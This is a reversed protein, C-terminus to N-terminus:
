NSFVMAANKEGALCNRLTQALIQPRYPKQIYNYGDVLEEMGEGMLDLSYGSTYIIKLGKDEEKLKLALQRGTMGEPMVMDTLLLDIETKHEAWVNLAEVGNEASLVRYGYKELIGQVLVRLGPEDEVLLITEQVSQIASMTQSHPTAPVEKTEAPVYIQFITGQGVQSSVEIWGKHQQVIGYVTSLGLGSGKGVGKTTFFPEFIRQLTAADMGCGTDSVTLCAFSGPRAEPRIRSYAKCIEVLSTSIIFQGGKPMADKANVALNGILQELMGTDARVFPAPTTFQTKLIVSEGLIRQLMTGLGEIVSDLNLVKPQMVQKRSFTLLQRTLTAAREAATSIEKLARSSLDQSSADALLLSTYGQIIALINNFDHAFGAALQGVAQMKHSQRVNIEQKLRDTVDYCCVLVCSMSEAALETSSALVTRLDGTRTRLRWESDANSMEARLSVCAEECAQADAWIATSLASEGLLEERRYGLLALFSDNVELFRGDAKSCLCLPFPSARFAQAFFDSCLLPTM